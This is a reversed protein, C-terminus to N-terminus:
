VKKSFSFVLRFYVGLLLLAYMGVFSFVGQVIYVWIPVFADDLMLSSNATQFLGLAVVIQPLALITIAILSITLAITIRSLRQEASIEPYHRGKLQLLHVVKLAERHSKILGILFVIIGFGLISIGVFDFLMIEWLLERPLGQQEFVWWPVGMEFATHSLGFVVATAGLATLTFSLLMPRANRKPRQLLLLLAQKYTMM